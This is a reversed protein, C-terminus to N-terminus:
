IILFSHVLSTREQAQTQPKMQLKMRCIRIIHLFHARFLLEILSIKANRFKILFILMISGRSSKASPMLSWFPMRRDSGIDLEKWCVGSYGRSNAVLLVHIFIFRLLFIFFLYFFFHFVIFHLFFSSLFSFFLTSRWEM